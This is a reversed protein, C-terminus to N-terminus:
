GYLARWPEQVSRPKEIEKQQLGEISFCLGMHNALFRGVEYLAELEQDASRKSQDRACSAILVTPLNLVRVMQLLCALSECHIQLSSPATATEAIMSQFIDTTGQIEAGCLMVKQESSAPNALEQNVKLAKMVYPLIIIPQNPSEESSILALVEKVACAAIPPGYNPLLLISVQPSGHPDVFEILDGSAKRDGIGYKELSLEFSSTERMFNSDPNPRLADAIAPGFGDPDRVLFIVKPALRM